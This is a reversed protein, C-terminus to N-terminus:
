YGKKKKLNLKLIISNICNQNHWARAVQILSIGLRFGQISALAIPV